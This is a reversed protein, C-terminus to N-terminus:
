RGSKLKGLERLALVVVDHAPVATGEGTIVTENPQHPVDFIDGNMSEAQLRAILKFSMSYDRKLFSGRVFFERIRFDSGDILVRAESLDWVPNKGPGSVRPVEIRYLKGNPGETTELLQNGSAQMLAISAQMHLREMEPLSMGPETEPLTVEYRYPQGESVFAMVRRRTVPDQAISTLMQGKEDFSAFRFRGPVNHDITQRVHYVGDVQDPLMEKPVGDLVLEYELIEVGKAPAALQTASKALIESASVTADNKRVAPAVFLVALITAAAIGLTGYLWKGEAHLRFGRPASTQPRLRTSGTADAKLRFAVSSPIAVPPDIAGRMEAILAERQHLRAACSACTAVHRQMEGTGEGDALAQIHSDNLCTMRM